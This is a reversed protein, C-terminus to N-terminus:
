KILCCARTKMYTTFGLGSKNILNKLGLFAWAPAWLIFGLELRFIEPGVCMQVYDFLQSRSSVLKLDKNVYMTVPSVFCQMTDPHGSSNTFFNSLM